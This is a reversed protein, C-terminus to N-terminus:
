FNASGIGATLPQVVPPRSDAAARRQDASPVNKGALFMLAYRAADYIHDDAETDVDNPNKKSRPLSPFTRIFDRCNEYVMFRSLGDPRVKLHHDLLAAGNIRTNVAKHPVRDLVRMYHHAPSGVPPMDANLSKAVGADGRHWMSPDMVIPIKKGMQREEEASLDRIMEAQETATLEAMHLERYVLVLDDHLKVMWVAAFPSAIGYDVGIVKQGSSMFKSMPLQDPSIVHHPESWSPFRVGQFVNWDGELMAKRQDDPLDRLEDIYEDNVHPNDWVTAPIFCRTGPNPRKESPAERFIKGPPAPDVFRGKVWHHGIGGPNATLIMRPILGLEKLRDKVDDAARVRSRLYRYQGETFHTAEEFVVLVYEAGQHSEKHKELQMHRLFIISGNKFNWTHKSNNYTAIEKPIEKKMEEVVSAELQPFERRFIVIKAGPVMLATMVAEARAMRSNHTPILTRGALYIHLADDVTICNAPEDAAVQEIGTIYVSSTRASKESGLPLKARKRPYRAVPLHTTFKLRWRDKCQVDAYGAYGRQPTCRLGLTALLRSVEFALPEDSLSLEVQGRDNVHGDSDIIGQLLALRDEYPASYAWSPIHKRRDSHHGLDATIHRHMLVGRSDKFTYNKGASVRHLEFGHASMVRILETADDDGQCIVGSKTHGDGLWMGLVWPPTAGEWAGITEIPGPAPISIKRKESAFLDALEHTELTRTYEWVSDRVQGERAAAATLQNRATVSAQQHHGREPNQKARSPRAARRRAKWEPDARSFSARDADTQVTWLHERGARITEGSSFTILYHCATPPTYSALVTVPRGDHGYVQDGPKLAGHTTWGTPTLVPTSYALLKGGGAAGGYLLENVMVSHAEAQKPSPTYKYHVQNM